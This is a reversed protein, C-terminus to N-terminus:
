DEPDPMSHLVAILSQVEVELESVIARAAVLKTHADCHHSGLEDQLQRAIMDSRGTAVSPIKINVHTAIDIPKLWLLQACDSAM